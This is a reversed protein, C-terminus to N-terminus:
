NVICDQIKILNQHNIMCVPESILACKQLTYSSRDPSLICYMHKGWQFMNQTDKHAIFNDKFSREHSRAGPYVKYDLYKAVASSYVNSHLPPKFGDKNEGSGRNAITMDLGRADVSCRLTWHPVVVKEKKEAVVGYCCSPITYSSSHQSQM